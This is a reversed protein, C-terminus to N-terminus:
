FNLRVVPWFSPCARPTSKQMKLLSAATKLPPMPLDQLGGPPMPRQLKLKFNRNSSFDNQMAVMQRLSSLASQMNPTLNSLSTQSVATELFDRAFATQSTLALDVEMASDSEDENDM